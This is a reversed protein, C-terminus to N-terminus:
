PAAQAPRALRSRIIWGSRGSDDTIRVWDGAYSLAEVAAGREVVFLISGDTGPMSRVNTRGMAELRLPAAFRTEGRVTGRGGDAVRARLAAATNKAQDAMYLAGGFNQRNFEQNSADLLRRAEGAEARGRGGAAALAQVAVEAEAIASAAEARTAFTQLKAMARVVERRAEDLRKEMQELEAEKELLQLELRDVRQELAPDQVKVTDVRVVVREVPAPAEVVPAPDPQPEPAKGACAGLGLSVCLLRPWRQRGPLTM